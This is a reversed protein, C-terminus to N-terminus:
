VQYGSNLGWTGCPLSSGILKGETYACEGVGVLYAFMTKFISM